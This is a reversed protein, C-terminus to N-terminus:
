DAHAHRLGPPMASRNLYGFIEFGALVMPPAEPPLEDHVFMLARLPSTTKLFTFTQLCDDVIALNVDQQRDIVIWEKGDSSGKLTWDTPMCCGRENVSSVTYADVEIASLHLDVTFTVPGASRFPRPSRTFLNSFEAQPNVPPSSRIVFHPVALFDRYRHVLFHFIGHLPNSEDFAIRKIKLSCSSPPRRSRMLEALKGKLWNLDMDPNEILRQFESQSLSELNLHRILKGGRALLFDNADELVGSFYLDLLDPDFNEFTPNALLESFPVTAQLANLPVTVDCHTRFLWQLVELFSPHKVYGSVYDFLQPVISSIDLYVAMAWIFFCHDMSFILEKGDLFDAIPLFPGNLPFDDPIYFSSMSRVAFRAIEFRTSRQGALGSDVPFTAGRFNITCASGKRRPLPIDPFSLTIIEDDM